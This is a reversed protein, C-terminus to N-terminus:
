GIVLGETEPVGIALNMNQIASGSAGKGLNDFLSVLIVRDDNGYASVLMDDRGTLASSSIFGGEDLSDAFRVLKADAYFERYADKVSALARATRLSALDLQVTVEMGSLHPVVIPSFVPAKSLGCYKLMEPLHKHTQGLAYQRGGLYLQLESNSNSIPHDNRDGVEKELELKEDYDAIMKKGGGSYGTLSFACLSADAPIVGARVLPAVLAIFGSAHCGPNAIRKASALRSRYPIGNDTLEPFGYAWGDACRHATSTDIVVTNPNEVLSVAEVAAADPLCLFAVDCSNLADRRANVDKRIEDPLIVLEIDKRESLRERIRLGTTGASGDIFVKKMPHDAHPVADAPLNWRKLSPYLKLLEQKYECATLNKGTHKNYEEVFMSCYEAMYEMSFDGTFAGDKYCYICYEHNKSGDANTGLVEDTLPMGCSQCIKTNEKM